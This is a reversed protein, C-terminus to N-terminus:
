KLVGAEGNVKILILTGNELLDCVEKCKARDVDRIARCNNELFLEIRGAISEHIVIIMRYNERCCYKQALQYAYSGKLQNVAKKLHSCLKEVNTVDVKLEAIYCGVIERVRGKRDVQMSTMLADPRLGEGNIDCCLYNCLVCDHVENPDAICLYISMQKSLRARTEIYLSVKLLVNTLTSCKGERQQKARLSGLTGLDVLGERCCVPNEILSSM